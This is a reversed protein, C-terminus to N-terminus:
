AQAKTVLQEYLDRIPASKVPKLLFADAGAELGRAKLDEGTEGTLMVIPVRRAGAPQAARFLRVFTIGDMEPMKVDVIILDVDMLRALQLGRTGNEADFFKIPMGMLYVKIIERIIKSDDVLLVKKFM